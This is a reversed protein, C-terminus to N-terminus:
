LSDRLVTLDNMYQLIHNFLVSKLFNVKLFCLRPNTLFAQLAQFKEAYFRVPRALLRRDALVVM